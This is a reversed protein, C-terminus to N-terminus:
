VGLGHSKPKCKPRKPSSGLGYLSDRSKTEPSQSCRARVARAAQHEPFGHGLFAQVRFGLAM